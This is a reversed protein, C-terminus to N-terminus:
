GDEAIVSCVNKTLRTSMKKDKSSTLSLALIDVVFPRLAMAGTGVAASKRSITSEFVCLFVGVTRM